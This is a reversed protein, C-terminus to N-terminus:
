RMEVNIDEYYALTGSRSSIKLGRLIKSVNCCLDSSWRLCRAESRQEFHGCSRLKFICCVSTLVQCGIAEACFALSAAQCAYSLEHFLCLIWRM